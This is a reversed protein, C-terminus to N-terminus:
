PTPGNYVGGLRLILRPRRVEVSTVTWRVGGWVVYKIHAFHDNAYEDAVVSISNTVNIDGEVKEGMDLSSAVREVSGRYPLEDIKTDFIGSNPPDEVSQGYGVMGSFRAM